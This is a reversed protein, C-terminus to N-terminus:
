LPDSRPGSSSRSTRIKLERCVRRGGTADIEFIGQVETAAGRPLSGMGVAARSHRGREGLVAVILDSAGNAVKPHEAFSAVANVYVLVNVCRRVRAFDSDVATNVHSLVNLACLRASAYGDRSRSTDGLRGIYTTEGNHLPLQGSVFLLNGACVFPFFNASPTSLVPLALGLETLREQLNM